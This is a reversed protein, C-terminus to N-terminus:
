GRIHHHWALAFVANSVRTRGGLFVQSNIFPPAAGIASNTSTDLPLGRNVRQGAPTVAQFRDPLLAIADSNPSAFLVIPQSAPPTIPGRGEIKLQPDAAPNYRSEIFVPGPPIIILVSIIAIISTAIRAIPRFSFLREKTGRLFKLGYMLSNFSIAPLFAALWIVMRYELGKILKELSAVSVRRSPLQATTEGRLDAAMRRVRLAFSLAHVLRLLVSDIENLHALLEERRPNKEEEPLWETSKIIIWKALVRGFALLEEAILRALVNLLLMMSVGM